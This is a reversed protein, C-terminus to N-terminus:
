SDYWVCEASCGDDFFKAVSDDVFVGLSDGSSTLSGVIRLM